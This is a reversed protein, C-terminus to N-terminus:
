AGRNRAVLAAIGPHHIRDEPEPKSVDCIDAEELTRNGLTVLTREFADLAGPTFEAAWLHVTRTRTRTLLRGLGTAETETVEDGTKHAITVDGLTVGDAMGEAVLGLGDGAFTTFMLGFQELSATLAAGLLRAHEDTIWFLAGDDRTRADYTLRKFGLRVAMSFPLLGRLTYPEERDLPRLQELIEHDGPQVEGPRNPDYLRTLGAPSPTEQRKKRRLFDFVM